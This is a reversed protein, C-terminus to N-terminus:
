LGRELMRAGVARLLPRADGNSGEESPNLAHNCRATYAMSYVCSAALTMREARSFPQGRAHEYDSVFSRMEDESPNREVDERQWDATFNRATAGVLVPEREFHLSDWDYSMVVREGDFRLHEVRWDFHGVVREGEAQSRAARARLALEEIWAAGERTGDFDLLPSHPTPFARGEPLGSFWASGLRAADPFTRSIAALEALSAAVAGRIAPAHADRWDGVQELTEVLIWAAGLRRPELLPRPCPFGAGLLHARFEACATLYAASRAGRQAKVVISRGDELELGAVCGVSVRYFRASAVGAGLAERCFDDIQREIAEPDTVGFISADVVPSEWNRHEAAILSSLKV